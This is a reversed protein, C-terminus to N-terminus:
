QNKRLEDQLFDNLQNPKLNKGIIRFNQDLVYLEPTIDIFYKQHYLSSIQPDWVDVWNVGYKKAFNQWEEINKAASAISFIELGMPKWKDYVKRLDPTMEQCHECDPNYIYVIKFRNKLDYLSRKTNNKDTGWINQGKMGLLSSRMEEAKQRTAVLDKTEIDTFREATMYKLVLYSYVAEGDMLKSLSPKYQALVWNLCDKFSNENVQAKSLMHETVNIITDPIQPTLENIYRKIKNIFVPTRILRQDSFDYGNWFDYRYNVMVKASDLRGDPLYEMRFKPNQGGVKFHVYLSNPYQVAQTALKADREALLETQQKTVAEYQPTNPQLNRIQQVLANYKAELAAQYRVGEYYLENELSGEPKISLPLNNRDARLTFDNEGNAVFVAINKSDPLLLYYLGQPFSDKQTFSVKGDAAIKATDLLYTQDGYYGLLKATGETYGQIQFHIRTTNQAFVATFLATFLITFTLLRSNM